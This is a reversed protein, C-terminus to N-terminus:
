WSSRRTEGRFVISPCFVVAGREQAQNSVTRQQRLALVNISWAINVRRFKFKDRIIDTLSGVAEEKNTNEMGTKGFGYDRPIQLTAWRNQQWTSEMTEVIGLFM